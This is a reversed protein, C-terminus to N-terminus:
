VQWLAGAGAGAGAGVGVAGSGGEGEGGEEGGEAGIRQYAPLAAWYDEM